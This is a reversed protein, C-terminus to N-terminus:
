NQRKTIRPFFKGRKAMKVSIIGIFFSLLDSLLHAADSMIAVSNSVYGGLFELCMFVFCVGAVRLLRDEAKPLVPFNSQNPDHRSFSFIPIGLIQTGERANPSDHRQGGADNKYTKLQIWPKNFSFFDRKAFGSSHAL